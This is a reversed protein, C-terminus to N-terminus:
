TALQPEYGVIKAKTVHIGQLLIPRAQLKYLANRFYLRRLPGQTPPVPYM